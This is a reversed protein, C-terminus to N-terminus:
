KFFFDVHTQDQRGDLFDNFTELRLRGNSSITLKQMRVVFGQNWTLELVGDNVSLAAATQTGWVAATQTGWDCDEPFCAGWMRVVLNRNERVIQVRTNNRTEPDENFWMGLFPDALSPQIPFGSGDGCGATLMALLVFATVTKSFM